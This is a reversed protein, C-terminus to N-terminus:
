AAEDALIQIRSCDCNKDADRAVVLAILEWAATLLPPGYIM